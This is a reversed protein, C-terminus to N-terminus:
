VLPRHFIIPLNMSNGNSPRFTTASIFHNVVSVVALGFETATFTVRSEKFFM